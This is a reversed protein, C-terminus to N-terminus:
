MGIDLSLWAAGHLLVCGIGMRDWGMGDRGLGTVKGSQALLNAFRGEAPGGRVSKKAPRERCLVRLQQDLVCLM